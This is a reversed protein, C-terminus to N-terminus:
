WSFWSYFPPSAKQLSLTSCGTLRATMSLAIVLTKEAYWVAGIERYPTGVYILACAVAV